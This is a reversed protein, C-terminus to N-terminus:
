FATNYPTSKSLRYAGDIHLNDTYGKQTDPTITITSASLQANGKVGSLGSPMTVMNEPEPYFDVPIPQDTGSGPYAVTIYDYERATSSYSMDTLQGMGTNYYDSLLGVSGNNETTNNVQPKPTDTLYTTEYQVGKSIKLSVDYMGPGLYTHIPNQAESTNGDGFDWLWVDPYGYSIDYFRVTFPSDGMTRDSTFDAAMNDATFYAWNPHCIWGAPAGIEVPKLAYASVPYSCLFVLLVLFYVWQSNIQIKVM